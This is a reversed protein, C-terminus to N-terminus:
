SKILVGDSVRVNVGYIEEFLLIASTVDMEGLNRKQLEKIKDYVITSFTLDAKINKAMDLLLRQDKDATNVTASPEFNRRLAGRAYLETLIRSTAMGHSLATYVKDIDLGMKAAVCFAEAIAYVQIEGLMNHLLKTAAGHGQPGIHVTKASFLKLIPEVKRVDETRGGIMVTFTGQEAGIIGGTIPADLFRNGSEDCKKGINRVMEPSNTSLDVIIIGKRGASLLGDKGTVVDAVIEPSPLSLFVIKCNSAIEIPKSVSTAGAAICSTLHEKKSDCVILSKGSKLIRMAILSGIRGIGIFGVLNNKSPTNM